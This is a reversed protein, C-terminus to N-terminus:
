HIFCVGKGSRSAFPGAIMSLAGWVCVFAGGGM